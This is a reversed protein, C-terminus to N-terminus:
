NENVLISRIMIVEVLFLSNTTSTRTPVQSRRKLCKSSELNRLVEVTIPFEFSQPQPFLIDVENVRPRGDSPRGLVMTTVVDREIQSVGASELLCQTERPGYKFNLLPTLVTTLIM